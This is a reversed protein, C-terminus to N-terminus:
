IADNERDSGTDVGSGTKLDIESSKANKFVEKGEKIMDPIWTEVSWALFLFIGFLIPVGIFSFVFELM